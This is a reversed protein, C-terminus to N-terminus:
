FRRSNSGTGREPVAPVVALTAVLRVPSATDRPNATEVWDWFPYTRFPVFGLYALATARTAVSPIGNDAPILIEPWRKPESSLVVYVAWHAGDGTRCMQATLLEVEQTM